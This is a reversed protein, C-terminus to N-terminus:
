AHSQGMYECTRIRDARNVYRHRVQRPTWHCSRIESILKQCLCCSAISSTDTAAFVWRREHVGHCSAWWYPRPNFCCLRTPSFGVCGSRYSLPLTPSKYDSSSLEIRERLVLPRTAGPHDSSGIRPPESLIVLSRSFVVLRTHCDLRTLSCTPTAYYTSADSKFDSPSIRLPELGREPMVRNLLYTLMFFFCRFLSAMLFFSHRCFCYRLSPMTMIGVNFSSHCATM